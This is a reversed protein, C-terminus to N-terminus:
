MRKHIANALEIWASTNMVSSNFISPVEDHGWVTISEQKTKVRWETDYDSKSLVAVQHNEPMKLETGRLGRGRLTSKLEENEIMYSTVAADGDFHIRCPLLQVKDKPYKSDLDFAKPDISVIESKTM